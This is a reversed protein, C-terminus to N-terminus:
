HIPEGLSAISGDPDESLENSVSVIVAAIPVALFAGVLGFGVGGVAIALLIVLPHLRMTKGFVLPLIVDGELQQVAVVIGLVILAETPGQNVLAVAVAFLGSIFAGVVPFFAGFFVLLSLPVVLPVGMILLGIGIALGNVLGVLSLGKVYRNLTRWAVRGGRSIRDAREPSVRDVLKAVLQDGDKLVFFTVIFALIIGAVVELAIGAGSLLGAAVTSAQEGFQEALSDTYTAVEAESLGLPGDVLWVLLNDYADGLDETLEGLGNFLAPFVLAGVGGLVILAGLMVTWTALLPRWGRRKLARVPGWLLSAPFLAFVAALIVVSVIKLAQFGFYVAVGIVILRWAIDSGRRLWGPM